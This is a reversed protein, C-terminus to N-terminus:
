SVFFRRIESVIEKPFLCFVIISGALGVSAVIIPCLLECQRLLAVALPLLCSIGGVFLSVLHAQSRKFTAFVYVYVGIDFAIAVIPLVWEFGIKLDFLAFIGYLFIIGALAIYSLKSAINRVGLLTHRVFFYILLLSVASAIWWPLAPHVYLNALTCAFTLLMSAFIYYLTFTVNFVKVKKKRPPYYSEGQSKVQAGCLPCRETHGQIKTHCNECYASM